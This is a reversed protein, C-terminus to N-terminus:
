NPQSENDTILKVHTLRKIREISKTNVIDIFIFEEYEKDQRLDAM